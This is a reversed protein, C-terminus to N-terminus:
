QQMEKMRKRALELDAAPTKQTKKIFGRVVGIRDEFFGTEGVAAWAAESALSVAAGAGAIGQLFTRRTAPVASRGSNPLQQLVKDENAM